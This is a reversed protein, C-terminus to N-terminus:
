GQILTTTGPHKDWKRISIKKWGPNRIGSGVLVFSLLPFINKQQIKKAM